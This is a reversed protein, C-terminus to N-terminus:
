KNKPKQFKYINIREFFPKSFLYFYMKHQTQGPQMCFLRQLFLATVLRFNFWYLNDVMSSSWPRKWAAIGGEECCGGGVVCPCCCRQKRHSRQGPQMCFLRQLVFMWCYFILSYWRRIKAFNGRSFVHCSWGFHNQRDEFYLVKSSWVLRVKQRCQALQDVCCQIAVFTFHPYLKNQGDYHAFISISKVGLSLRRRQESSAM